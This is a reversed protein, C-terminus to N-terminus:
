IGIFPDHQINFLALGVCIIESIRLTTWLNGIESVFLEEGKLQKM